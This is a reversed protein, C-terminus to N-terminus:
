YNNKLLDKGPSFLPYIKNKKINFLKKNVTKKVHRWFFNPTINIYNCFESIIKKSFKGDYRKVIKIADSRSIRKNRIDDNM